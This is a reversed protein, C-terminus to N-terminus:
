LICSRQTIINHLVNSKEFDIRLNVIGSCRFFQRNSSFFMENKHELLLIPWLANKDLCKLLLSFDTEPDFTLIFESGMPPCLKSHFHKRM